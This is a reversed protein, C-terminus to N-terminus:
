GDKLLARKFCTFASEYSTTPDVNNPDNYNSRNGYQNGYYSSGFLGGGGYYGANYNNNQNANQDKPKEKEKNLINAINGARQLVRELLRRHSGHVTHKFLLRYINNQNGDEFALDVRDNDILVEILEADFSDIAFQLPVKKDNKTKANVDANYELLLKVLNIKLAQAERLSKRKQLRDESRRDAQSVLHSAVLQCAYHLPTMGNIDAANM